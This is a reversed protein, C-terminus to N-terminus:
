PPVPPFTPIPLSVKQCQEECPGPARDKRPSVGAHGALTLVGPAPLPHHLHQADCGSLHRHGHGPPPCCFPQSVLPVSFVFCFCRRQSCSVQLSAKLLTLCVIRQRSQSLLLGDTLLLFIWPKHLLSFSPFISGGKGKMTSLSLLKKEVWSYKLLMLSPAM